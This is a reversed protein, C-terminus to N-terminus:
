GVVEDSPDAVYDLLDLCTAFAALVDACTAFAALIGACTATAGVISADPAAVETLPLVFYRAPSDHKPPRRETIDGVWFSGSAPVVCGDPVHLYVTDGFSLFLDLADVEAQDAARLTLEYTRSGRLQAVAVPLARGLVAVVEGRAARGVDSFDVVTVARNLFPRAPSKLWVTSLTPSITGSLTGLAVDAADFLRLRYTLTEGPPWEYDDLRVTGSSVEAATGGRVTDWTIGNSSREVIAHDAGTLGAGVIRVRALTADYTLTLTGGDYTVGVADYTVDAQDYTVM